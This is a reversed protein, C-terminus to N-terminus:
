KANDYLQELLSTQIGLDFRQRIREAGAQGLDTALNDNSLINEMSKRLEQVDHEEVLIGSVGSVIAEPIGSHVTSIVPTGTSMAELISIPLGERDGNPATVSPLVFAAAQSILERVVENEQHGHFVVKDAIGLESAQQVLQSALPGNGVIDLAADPHQELVGTFALLLNATGKKEVLRAVHVFRKKRPQVSIAFRNTDVGIYHTILKKAPFGNQIAKDKLDNSVCILFKASEALTNRNLAYRIAVPQGTRLLNKRSVTADRGHLTIVLPTETNQCPGSALMGDPGFHAHVLSPSTHRLYREFAVSKGTLAFLSDHLKGQHESLSFVPADFPNIVPRRAIFIGDHANLAKTQDRIFTESPVFLRQRFVAVKPKSLM